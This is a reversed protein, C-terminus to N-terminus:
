TEQIGTPILGITDPRLFLKRLLKNCASANTISGQFVDINGVLMFEGRSVRCAQRLVTVDDQCYSELVRRKHFVEFMQTEYWDLIETREGVSMEEVGYYSCEPTQGVYDLNEM